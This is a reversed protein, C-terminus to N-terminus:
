RYVLANFFYSGVMASFTVLFMNSRCKFGINM